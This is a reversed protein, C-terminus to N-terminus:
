DEGVLYVRGRWMKYHVIKRSGDIYDFGAYPKCFLFLCLRTYWPVKSKRGNFESYPNIDKESM